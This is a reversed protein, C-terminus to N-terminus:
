FLTDNLIENTLFINKYEKSQIAKKLVDVQKIHHLDTGLFDIMGNQSLFLAKDRADSGYYGIFSNINCQFIVGLEKFRDYEIQLEKIYRYREPHAMVPVYGESIIKFIMDELQIPKALYSTEFLLYKDNISMVRSSKLQEYFGDDLYYEAGVDIEISINEEDLKQRVIDLGEYIDTASNQYSDSMIHPTTIIKQYGIDKLEKILQISDDISKAGDDISPILHSHIDVKLSNYNNKDNSSQKKQFFSFIM